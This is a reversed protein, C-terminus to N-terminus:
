YLDNSLIVCEALANSVQMSSSGSMPNFAVLSGPALGTAIEKQKNYSALDPKIHDLDKKYRRRAAHADDLIM